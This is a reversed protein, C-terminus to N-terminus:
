GHSEGALKALSNLDQGAKLNQRIAQRAGLWYFYDLARFCCYNFRAPQHQELWRMFLIVRDPTTAWWRSLYLLGARLLTWARSRDKYKSLKLDHFTGPHKSALLVATQGKAINDRALAAFDKTYHQYALADSSFVLQVGARSLRVSLELDENGYIKFSEDFAGVELLVERRISFNGSYFDRLKFRYHPQALNKLHGNFKAGIYNVVPSSSQDLSIPVAGVVGRRTGDPHARLHAALFGLSPEMDDDLLILLEGTAMRIGANCAGARGRNPQWIGQLKYPAPFNAVMEQTGDESGDISVIVEYEDPPLTQSALSGLVRRVLACRQYTPIVVSVRYPATMLNYCDWGTTAM